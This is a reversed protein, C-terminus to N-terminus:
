EVRKKDCNFMWNIDYKDTLMGFRAGWFTDQLPMTVTGGEALKDFVIAQDAENDHNVSLAVNTGPRGAYTGAADSAMLAMGDAAFEAHMIRNADAPDSPMPAESFRQLSKIEGNFAHKYFNLAEECTGPFSLYVSLQPM